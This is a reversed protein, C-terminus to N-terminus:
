ECQWGGGVCSPTGALAGVAGPLGPPCAWHAAVRGEAETRLFGLGWGLKRAIQSGHLQNKFVRDSGCPFAGEAEVPLLNEPRKKELLSRGWGGPYVLPSSLSQLGPNLGLSEGLTVWLEWSPTKNCFIRSM